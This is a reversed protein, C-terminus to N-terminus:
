TGDEEKKTMFDLLHHTWLNELYIGIHNTKKKKIKLNGLEHVFVNFM